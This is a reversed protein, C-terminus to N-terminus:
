ERPKKPRNKRGLERTLLEVTQGLHAARPDRSMGKMIALTSLAKAAVDAWRAEMTYRVSTVLMEMHDAFNGFADKFHLMAMAEDPDFTGLDRVEPYAEVAAIMSELFLRPVTRAGRVRRAIPKHPAQIGNIREMLAEMEDVLELVLRQDATIEVLPRDDEIEDAM